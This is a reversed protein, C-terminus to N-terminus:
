YYYYPDRDPTPRKRAARRAKFHACEECWADPNFGRTGAMPLVDRHVCCEPSGNEAPRRWRCSQFRQMAPSQVPEGLPPV